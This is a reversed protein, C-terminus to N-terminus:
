KKYIGEFSLTLVDKYPSPIFCLLSLNINFLDPYKFIYKEELRFLSKTLNRFESIKMKNLNKYLDWYYNKNFIGKVKKSYIIKKIESEKKYYHIPFPTYDYLHHGVLSYFPTFEVYLVGGKKLIRKVESMMLKPNNVHEIVDFLFVIDFFNDKFPLIEDTVYRLALNKNHLKQRAIKLKDKDTETGYVRIGRKQLISLLPGYGCGIDLAASNKNLKKVKNIKDISPKMREIRWELYSNISSRSNKFSAKTTKM